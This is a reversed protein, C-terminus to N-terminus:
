EGMKQLVLDDIMRKTDELTNGGQQPTIVPQDTPYFFYQMTMEDEDIKREITYGEHQVIPDPNKALEDEMAVIERAKRVTDAPDGFTKMYNTKLDWLRSITPNNPDISEVVFRGEHGPIPVDSQYPFGLETLLAPVKQMFEPSFQFTTPVPDTEEKGGKNVKRKAREKMKKLQDDDELRDEEESEGEEERIQRMSKQLQRDMSLLFADHIRKEIQENSDDPFRKKLKRRMKAMLKSKSAASQQKQQLFRDFEEARLNKRQSAAEALEARDAATEDEEPMEWVDLEKTPDSPRHEGVEPTIVEGLEETIAEPSQLYQQFAKETQVPTPGEEKEEEQAQFILADRPIILNMHYSEPGVVCFVRRADIMKFPRVVFGAKLDIGGRFKDDFAFVRLAKSVIAM